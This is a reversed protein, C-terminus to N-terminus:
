MVPGRPLPHRLRLGVDGQPLVAAEFARRHGLVADLQCLFDEPRDHEMELVLVDACEGDGREADNHPDDLIGLEHRSWRPNERRTALRNFSRSTLRPPHGTCARAQEGAFVGVVEEGAPLPPSFARTELEPVILVPVERIHRAVLRLDAGVFAQSHLTSQVVCPFDGRAPDGRTGSLRDADEAEGNGGVAVGPAVLGICGSRARLERARQGNGVSFTDRTRVCVGRGGGFVQREDDERGADLM